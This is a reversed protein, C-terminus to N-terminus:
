SRSMREVEGAAYGEWRHPSWLELYCVIGILLADQKIEAYQCFLHPLYVRGEPDLPCLAAKTLFDRLDLPTAGMRRLRDPMKFWEVRPYLVLCGDFFMSLVLATDDPAYMERLAQRISVPLTLRGVHDLSLRYEGFLM